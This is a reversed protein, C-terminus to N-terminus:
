SHQGRVQTALADIDFGRTLEVAAGETRLRHALQAARSLPIGLRRCRDPDAWAEELPGSFAIQGGALACVRDALPLDDGSHTIMLAAVGDARAEAIAQRMAQAALAGLQSTPEDLVLIAPTPALAAALSLIQQQGGSMARPSEWAAGALGVRELLERVRAGIVEPAVGRAELPYAIESAASDTIVQAAPDQSVFGLEGQRTVTGSSPELLGAAVRALTSKGSGSAGCLAVCEGPQVQLSFGEFVPEPRGEFRVAINQLDLVM